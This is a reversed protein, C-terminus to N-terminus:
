FSEAPTKGFTPFKWHGLFLSQFLVRDIAAVFAASCCCNFSSKMEILSLIIVGVEVAAWTSHNSKSRRGLYPREMLENDNESWDFSLGTWALEGGKKKAAEVTAAASKSSSKDVKLSSVRLCRHRREVVGGREPLRHDISWSMKQKPRSWLFPRWDRKTHWHWDDALDTLYKKKIKQNRQKLTQSLKPPKRVPLLGTNVQSVSKVAKAVAKASGEKASTLM